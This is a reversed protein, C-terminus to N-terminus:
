RSCDSLARGGCPGCAGDCWGPGERDVFAPTESTSRCSARRGRATVHADASCAIASRILHRTPYSAAHSVGASLPSFPPQGALFTHLPHRSDFECSWSSLDAVSRRGSTGVGQGATIRPRQGRLVHNLRTSRSFPCVLPVFHVAHQARHGATILGARCRYGATGRAGAMETHAASPPATGIGQLCAQV